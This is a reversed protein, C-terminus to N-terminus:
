GAGSGEEHGCGEQIEEQLGVDSVEQKQLWDEIDSIDSQRFRLHGNIKLHPIRKCHTLYYVYSKPVSLLSSIEQVTLLKELRTDVSM